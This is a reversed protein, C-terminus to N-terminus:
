DLFTGCGACFKASSKSKKGCTSCTLRTKTTTIKKVSKGSSKYGQLKINIVSSSTELEGMSGYTFGQNVESGKVTIGEESRPSSCKMKSSTLSSSGVNSCSYTTIPGGSFDMVPSEPYKSVNDWNWWITPLDQEKEFKFEVRVIGDDVRDGRYESIQKTKNIFRFRNTVNTGKMFGKLSFEENPNIILGNGDLTDRGDVEVNVLARVSNKNKVLVEYESGFPLKVVGNQERLIKGKNKIVAIFDKKYVM